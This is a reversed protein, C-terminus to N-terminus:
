RRSHSSPWRTSIAPPRQRRGDFVEPAIYALSGIATGLQTLTRRTAPTAPSASIWWTPSIPPTLLINEPKVDRHVLGAAHSDLAQAVDDVISVVRAPALKGSGRIAARLDSGRSSACTSTSRAMSRASTTSRSSTPDGLRAVARSERRFREAYVRRRGVGDAVAEARGHPREEYRLGPLGGWAGAAWSSVSSTAVSRRAPATEM